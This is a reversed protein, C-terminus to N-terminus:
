EKGKCLINDILRTQGFRVAVAVIIPQDTLEHLPQLSPYTLVEVYDIKALPQTSIQQYVFDRVEEATSWRGETLGNKAALLSKSLILAQQREEKTLYVNRSSMALGDPERVTECPVITIPFNLDHVMQQIVAVQQADKLGFYARDPMVIHFLKTVVTAVGTFHGPRSAGCLRESVNAVSVETLNPTPYMEEVSPHFLFDVGAKEALESDRKFDRPYRDLDENPGFQLPNVFISMVVIDCEQRARRVLSLHGEHLYGMTPVLGIIKNRLPKLENSLAQITQVINM